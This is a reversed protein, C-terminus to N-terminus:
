FPSGGPMNGGFMNMMKKMNNGKFKKMMKQMQNHQKILQKVEKPEAGSGKAIRQQRSQQQQIWQPNRREEPTMSNIMAENRKLSKESFQNQVSAPLQQPMNPMKGMLNQIGGMQRMQQLQEKYDDIDFSKGKKITSTLKKAKSQDVKQEAQEILSEMDGMGLIRSAVREPYFPELAQNKEGTGMFKIPKDTLYVTSLAAGGRADGDAKTLIIGTLPLAKAFAKASNAADQGIMSDIVYFTEVPKAIQHLAQIESMMDEDIHMRGATDIIVTDILRKKAEKIADKAIQSPKDQEQSPYFQADVQESLTQLQEIAAPRYVDTSVTIVSKKKQTKLWNALKAVSTTKGSGQLGAVLIVVPPRAKLNVDQNKDGLIHTLENKVTKILMEGPKLSDMVEQGLAKAKVRELFQDVVPLAVDAELLAMRVEKLTSQINAETLRGQGKLSKITKQLRQRLHDFM